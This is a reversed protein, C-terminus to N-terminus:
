PRRLRVMFGMWLMQSYRVDLKLSVAPNGFGSTVGIRWRGRNEAPKFTFPGLSVNAMQAVLAALETRDGHIDASSFDLDTSFRGASGAFLKRLATGGKFSVLEFLGVQHLHALLFDQAIDLVAIGEDLGSSPPVHRKIHGLTLNATAGVTM